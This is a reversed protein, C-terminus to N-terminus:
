NGDWESIVAQQSLEVPVETYPPRVEVVAGDGCYLQYSDWQQPYMAKQQASAENEAEVVVELLVSYKTM